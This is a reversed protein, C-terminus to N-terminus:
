LSNASNSQFPVMQEIKYAKVILDIALTMDAITNVEFYAGGGLILSKSQNGIDVM